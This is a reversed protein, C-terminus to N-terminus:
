VGFPGPPGYYEAYIVNEFSQSAEIAIRAMSSM